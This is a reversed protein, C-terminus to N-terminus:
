TIFNRFADRFKGLSIFVIDYVLPPALLLLALAQIIGWKYEAEQPDSSFLLAIMIVWIFASYLFRLVGSIYRGAAFYHLGLMGLLGLAWVSLIKKKSTDIRRDAQVYYESTGQKRGVTARLLTVLLTVLGEGRVRRGRRTDSYFNEAEAKILRKFGFDSLSGTYIDATIPCGCGPCAAAKDSVERACGPCNILAM